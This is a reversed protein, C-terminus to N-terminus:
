SCNITILKIHESNRSFKNYIIELNEDVNWVFQNKISIVLYTTLVKKLTNKNSNGFM